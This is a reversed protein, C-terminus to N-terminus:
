EDEGILNEIATKIETKTLSPKLSIRSTDAFALADQYSRVAKNAKNRKAYAQALTILLQPERTTHENNELLKICKRYREAKLLVTAYTDLIHLNGPDLKRAEEAASIATHPDFGPSHALSWAFNNLLAANASSDKELENQNTDIIKQFLRAAKEPKDAALLFNAYSIMLAPKKNEALAAEYSQEAKEVKGLKLYARAAVPAIMEPPATSKECERVAQEYDENIIYTSLRATEFRPEDPYQVSLETFLAQASDIKGGKLAMMAGGYKVNVDDSYKSELIKQAAASKDLLKNRFALDRFLTLSYKTSVNKAHMSSVAALAEDSKGALSLATAYEVLVRPSRLFVQPLNRYSEIAVDYQKERVNERAYVIEVAPDGPLNERAKQVLELRNSSDAAISLLAKYYLEEGESYPSERPINKRLAVISDTSNGMAYLLALSLRARLNITHDKKHSAAESIQKLLKKAHRPQEQAILFGAHELQLMDNYNGLEGAETFLNEVADYNYNFAYFSALMVTTAPNLLNKKRCRILFTRASDALGSKNLAIAINKCLSASQNNEFARTWLALASDYAEFQYYLSAKLNRSKSTDDLENYLSLVYNLKQEKQTHFSLRALARLVAAHKLGKEWAAKTHLFAANQNSTVQAAAWEYEAKEPDKKVAALFYRYAKERDQDALENKGQEFCEQASMGQGVGCSVALFVMSGILCFVIHKM